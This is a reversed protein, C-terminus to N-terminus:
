AANPEPADSSPYSDMFSKVVEGSVQGCLQRHGQKAGWHALAVTKGEPLQGYSSDWAAAIFKRYANDGRLRKALDQIAQLQAGQVSPDYWLVTYGHELNHVLQEVPPRDEATYFARDSVAAPAPYHKGSSPPVTAYKLKTGV